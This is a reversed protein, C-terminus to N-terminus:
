ATLTTSDHLLSLTTSLLEPCETMEPTAWFAPGEVRNIHLDLGQRQWADVVQATAPSLANNIDSVIDIWHVPVAIPLNKADQKDIALALDPSIEYGAIELTEGDRMANRMVETGGRNTGNSLMDSAMRLRLFQTLLTKGDIVPQWLILCALQDPISHAFDLALLAGLRLGWLGVRTSLRDELWKKAIALDTKWIDWSADRFEGASDGCGYLDISLVGYGQDALARAQLAAMRRSRNMDEAFPHVYIFAGRCAQGPRPAHFLCFRQGTEAALFFPEAPVHDTLANM